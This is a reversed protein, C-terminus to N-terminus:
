MGHQFMFEGQLNISTAEENSMAEEKVSCTQSRDMGNTTIGKDEPRRVDFLCFAEM